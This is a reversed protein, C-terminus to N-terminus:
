AEGLELNFQVSQAEGDGPQQWTISLVELSTSANVFDIGSVDDAVTFDVCPIAGTVAIVRGHYYRRVGASQTIAQNANDRARGISASSSSELYGFRPRTSAEATTGTVIDYGDQSLTLYRTPGVPDSSYGYEVINMTSTAPTAGPTLTAGSTTGRENWAEFDFTPTLDLDCVPSLDSFAQSLPTGLPWVWEQGDDWATPTSDTTETFTAGSILIDAGTMGLDSNEQLLKLILEGVPFGPRVDAKLQRLAVASSSSILSLADINGKNDITGCAFRLSDNGDGGVSSVTTMEASVFYEGPELRKKWVNKDTYGTENASSDIIVGGMNPGDLYIKHEEDASSIFKIVARDVLTFSGIRFLTLGGTSDKWIWSAATAGSDWGQPENYKAETSVPTYVDVATFATDDFDKSMWGLYRNGEIGCAYRLTPSTDDCEAPLVCLEDLLGKLAGVAVPSQEPASGEAPGIVTGEGPALLYPTTIPTWVGGVDLEVVVFAEDLMDPNAALDTELLNASFSLSSDAWAKSYTGGAGIGAVYGLSTTADSALVHLRVVGCALAPLTM